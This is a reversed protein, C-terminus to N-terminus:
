CYRSSYLSDEIACLFDESRSHLCQADIIRRSWDNVADAIDQWVDIEKRKEECDGVQERTEENESNNVDNVGNEVKKEKVGLSEIFDYVNRGPSVDMRSSTEIYFLM